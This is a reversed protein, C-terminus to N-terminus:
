VGGWHGKVSVKQGASTGGKILLPAANGLPPKEAQGGMHPAWSYGRSERKGGRLMRPQYAADTSRVENFVRLLTGYFEKGGGKSNEV